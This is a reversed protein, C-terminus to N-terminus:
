LGEPGALRRCTRCYVRHGTAWARREADTLRWAVHVKICGCLSRPGHGDHPQQLADRVLHVASPAYSMCAEIM